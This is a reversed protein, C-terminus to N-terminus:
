STVEMYWVSSNQRYQERGQIMNFFKIDKPETVHIMSFLKADTPNMEMVWISSNSTMSTNLKFQIESSTPEKISMSKQMTFQKM